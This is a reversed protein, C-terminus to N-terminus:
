SNLQQVKTDVSSDEIIVGLSKLTEFAMKVNSTAHAYTSDNYELVIKMMKQLTFLSLDSTIQIDGPLSQPTCFTAELQKLKNLDIKM